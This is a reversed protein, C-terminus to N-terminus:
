CFYHSKELNIIVKQPPKINFSYFFGYIGNKFKNGNNNDYGM